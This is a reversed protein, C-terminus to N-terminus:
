LEGHSFLMKAHQHSICSLPFQERACKAGVWPIPSTAQSAKGVSFRSSFKAEVELKFGGSPSTNISPGYQSSGRVGLGINRGLFKYRRPSEWGWWICSEINKSKAESFRQRHHSVSSWFLGSMKTTHEHMFLSSPSSNPSPASVPRVRIYQAWGWCAAM